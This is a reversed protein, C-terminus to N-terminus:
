KTFKFTLDFDRDAIKAVTPESYIKFTRPFDISFKFPYPVAGPQKFFHLIYSFDSLSSLPSNGELNFELEITQAEGKPILTLFGFIEKEDQIIREVELLKPTKFDKSEYLAPDTVANTFDTDTGDIKIKKLNSGIPKIFRLYKISDSDQSNKLELSVVSSIEGTEKLEVKQNIIKNVLEGSFDTEFIGLFDNIQKPSSFNNTAFINELSPDNFAFSINKKHMMDIFEKSLLIRAINKRELSKKLSLVVETVFSTENIKTKSIELLNKSNKDGVKELLNQLFHLDLAIVGDVKEGTELEAFFSASAAAQKFDSNFAADMLHFNPSKLYRRIAFPPEVHGKLNKDLEYPNHITFDVIKGNDFTLIGFAQIAGGSGRQLYNNQFLVLYVKKSEIGLIQPWVNITQSIFNFLSRDLVKLGRLKNDTQALIVFDKIRSIAENTKGQSFLNLADHYGSINESEIKGKEISQALKALPDFKMFSTEYLLTKSFSDALNFSSKSLLILSKSTEMSTRSRDLFFFGLFSFVLTTILPLFMFLLVAFAALKFNDFSYISRNKDIAVDNDKNVFNHISNKLNRIRDELPYKESFLFKGERLVSPADAPNEEVFDIKINPDNKQIAHALTLLTVGHKPFIYYIKESSIGFSAELIGAIVDEYFIPYSLAMGDQPVEIRGRNRALALFRNVYSKPFFGTAPFIDGLYLIKSKRYEYIESPLDTRKLTTCFSFIARDEQAKKLFSPLAEITIADADDIIFIHSYINDPIKPIKKAFPVPIINESAPVYKQTVLVITSSESLKRALDIGLAGCKDVILVPFNEKSESILPSM